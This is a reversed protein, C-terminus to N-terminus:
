WSIGCLVLILNQMVSDLVVYYWMIGRKLKANSLGIGCVVVFYWVIGLNLKANSFGIGCLVM